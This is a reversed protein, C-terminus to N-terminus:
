EHADEMKQVLKKSLELKSPDSNEIKLSGDPDPNLLNKQDLLFRVRNVTGENGDILQVGDPILKQLREKYFLFHTCGLVIFEANLSKSLYDKLVTDVLETNDLQDHEVLEVLKPCGIRIINHDKEFREMLHIFKEEKLTLETAWVAITSPTKMNAAPKLAPEMGIIDLDHYHERLAKAAVSTATNCAIVIAKVGKKRLHEAIEFSYDRVVQKPKTGYPNRASDGFYIINENSLMKQLTAVVSLGGLGSDFVGIPDNAKM